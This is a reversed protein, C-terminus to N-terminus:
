KIKAKINFDENMAVTFYPAFLDMDNKIMLRKATCMIPYAIDPNLVMAKLIRDIFLKNRKFFPAVSTRIYFLCDEINEYNLAERERTHIYFALSLIKKGKKDKPEYTFYLDSMGEDYLEKIEKQASEIVYIRFDKYAKYKDELMFMEKLQIISKFFYGNNYNRYQSCLEYFRQSYSCKLTMAVTLDLTTFNRTLEVLYPLIQNSVQVELCTDNKVHRVWDIYGVNLFLENTDITINRNRLKIASKYVRSLNDCEKLQKPTLEIILNDFPKDFDRETRIFKERVERIIQFLIRKEVVDFDYRAETLVNAQSLMLSTKPEEEEKKMKIDNLHNFGLGIFFFPSYFFFRRKNNEKKV